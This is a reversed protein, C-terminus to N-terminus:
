RVHCENCEVPGAGFEKHCDICQGHMADPKKMMKTDEFEETDHCESCNKVVTETKQGSPDHCDGCARMASENDEPHHHCDGCSVSYGTSAAHLKHQFLVKGASTKFMLRIPVEPAKASFAAYSLVGVILLIVAFGYAIRLEKKSDM